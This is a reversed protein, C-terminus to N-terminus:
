PSSPEIPHHSPLFFVLLLFKKPVHKWKNPRPTQIRNGRLFFLRSQHKFAGVTNTKTFKDFGRLLLRQFWAPVHVTWGTNASQCLRPWAAAKERETNCTILALHLCSSIALYVDRTATLPVTRAAFCLRPSLSLWTLLVPAALGISPEFTEWTRWISKVDLLPFFFFFTQAISSFSFPSQGFM